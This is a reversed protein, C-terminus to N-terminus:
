HKVAFLSDVEADFEDSFERKLGESEYKNCIYQELIKAEDLSLNNTVIDGSKTIRIDKPMILRDLVNSYESAIQKRKNYDSTYSM